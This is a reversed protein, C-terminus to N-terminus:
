RLVNSATFGHKQKKTKRNEEETPKKIYKNSDM